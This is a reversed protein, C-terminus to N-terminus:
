RMKLFLRESQTEKIKFVIIGFQWVDWVGMKVLSVCSYLPHSFSFKILSVQKAGTYLIRYVTSTLPSATMMILDDTLTSFFLATYNEM